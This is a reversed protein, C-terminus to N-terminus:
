DVRKLILTYSTGDQLGIDIKNDTLFMHDTNKIGGDISIKEYIMETIEELNM